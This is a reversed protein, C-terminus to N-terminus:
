QAVGDKVSMRFRQIKVDSFLDNLVFPDNMVLDFASDRDAADLLLVQGLRTEGDDSLLPGAFRIRMMRSSWYDDHAGKIQERLGLREPNTTLVALYM